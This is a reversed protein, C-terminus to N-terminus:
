KKTKGLLCNEVNYDKSVHRWSKRLKINRIVPRPVKFIEAIETQTHKGDEMMKCIQRVKDEDLLANPASSGIRDHGFGHEKNYAVRGAQDTWMLNSADPNEINGDKFIIFHYNEPDPNYVFYKAVLTHIRFSHRKSNHHLTVAPYGAVDNVNSMPRDYPFRGEIYVHGDSSIFYKSEEGNILIRKVETGRIKM